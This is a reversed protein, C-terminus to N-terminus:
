QRNVVGTVHGESEAGTAGGKESFDDHGWRLVSEKDSEKNTPLSSQPAAGEVGVNM